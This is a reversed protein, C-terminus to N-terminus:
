DRQNPNVPVPLIRQRTHDPSRWTTAVVGRLVTPGRRDFVFLYIYSAMHEGFCTLAGCDYDCFPVLDCNQPESLYDLQSTRRWSSMIHPVMHAEEVDSVTCFHLAPSGVTRTFLVVRIASSLSFPQNKPLHGGHRCPHNSLQHHHCNLSPPRPWVLLRWVRSEM